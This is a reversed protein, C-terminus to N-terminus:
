QSKSDSDFRKSEISHQTNTKNKGLYAGISGCFRLHVVEEGAFSGVLRGVVEEDHVLVGPEHADCVDHVALFIGFKVYTM